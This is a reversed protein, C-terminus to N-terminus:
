KKLGPFYRKEGRTNGSLKNQFASNKMGYQNEVVIWIKSQGCKECVIKSFNSTIKTHGCKSCRLREAKNM